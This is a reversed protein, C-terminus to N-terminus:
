YVISYCWSSTSMGVMCKYKSTLFMHSINVLTADLCYQVTHHLSLQTTWVRSAEYTSNRTLLTTVVVSLESNLSQKALSNFSKPHGLVKALLFISLTLGILRYWQRLAHESNVTTSQHALLSQSSHVCKIQICYETNHSFLRHLSLIDCINITWHTWGVTDFTQRRSTVKWPSSKM